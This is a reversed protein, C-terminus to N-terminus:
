LREQGSLLRSQVFIAILTLFMPIIWHKLYFIPPKPKESLLSSIYNYFAPFQSFAFFAGVVYLKEYLVYNGIFFLFTTFISIAVSLMFFSLSFKRWNNEYTSLSIVVFWFSAVVVPLLLILNKDNDM